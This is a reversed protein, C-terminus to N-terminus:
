DKLLSVISIFTINLKSHSRNFSTKSQKTHEIKM